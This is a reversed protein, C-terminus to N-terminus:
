KKATNAIGGPLLLTAQLGGLLSRDLAFRGGVAEVLDSVISLGLGSGPAQEDLRQGRKLSELEFLNLFFGLALILRAIGRKLRFLRAKFRFRRRAAIAAIDMLIDDVVRGEFRRFGGQRRRDFFAKLRAQDDSLRVRLRGRREGGRLRLWLGFRSFGAEM